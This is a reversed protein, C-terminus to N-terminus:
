RSGRGRFQVIGGLEMSGAREAAALLRHLRTTGRSISTRRGHAYEATSEDRDEVDVDVDGDGYSACTSKSRREYKTIAIGHSVLCYTSYSCKATSNM